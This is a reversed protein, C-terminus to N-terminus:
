GHARRARRARRAQRRRRHQRRRWDVTAVVLPHRARRLLRRWPDLLADTEERQARLLALASVGDRRLGALMGALALARRRVRLARPLVVLVAVAPLLAAALVMALGVLAVVDPM